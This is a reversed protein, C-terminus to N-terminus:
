ASCDSGAILVVAGAGTQSAVLDGRADVAMAAIFELGTAVTYIYGRTMAALGFPCQSSCDSAAVLQVLDSDSTAAEAILLDGRADVALARPGDLAVSTAPGSAGDSWDPPDIGNGAVTTEAGGPTIARVTHTLQDGVYVTGD